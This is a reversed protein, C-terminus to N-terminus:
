SALDGPELSYPRTPAVLQSTPSLRSLAELGAAPVGHPEPAPTARRTGRILRPRARAFARALRPALSTDPRMVDSTTWRVVEYGLDRLRDERVKEARVADWPASTEGALAYKGWGDAEGVV